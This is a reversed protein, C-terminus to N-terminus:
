TYSEQLSSTRLWNPQGIPQSPEPQVPCLDLVHAYTRLLVTPSHGLENAVVHVPRGKMLENTAYSHRFGHPSFGGLGLRKLTRTLRKQVRGQTWPFLVPNGPARQIAELAEPRLRFSRRSRKTKPSAEGGRKGRQKTIHLVVGQVDMGTVALAESLRLGSHALFCWLPHMYDDSTADLFACLQRPTWVPTEASEVKPPKMHAVPSRLMWGRAIAYECAGKLKGQCLMHYTPSLDSLSSAVLTSNLRELRVGGLREKLKRFVLEYVTWTNPKVSPKVELSWTDLLVSVTIEDAKPDLLDGRERHWERLAALAQAKTEGTFTKRRRKGDSSPRSVVSEWRRHAESWYVSGEGRGRRSM